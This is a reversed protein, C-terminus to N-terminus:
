PKPPTAPSAAPDSPTPRDTASPVPTAPVDPNAIAPAPAAAAPAPGSSMASPPTAGPALPADAPIVDEEDPPNGDYIQSQRHQLFASRVTAYEDLSGALLGDADQDILQSRLDIARLGFLGVSDLTTWHIVANRAYPVPDLAFEVGLGVGDRLTSPGFFPLMLYPGSKIGWVAFTQGFDEKEEPRGWKTAVDVLGGIGVVSNILFRDVTRFAQKIKGQLVANIFSVPENLNSLGHSVGHRAVAPIVKRYVRATPLLAYHDLKKNFAYLKRNTKEYPDRYAEAMSGPHPTACGAVGTLLGIAVICEVVRRRM